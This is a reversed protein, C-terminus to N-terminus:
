KRAPRWPQQEDDGAAARERQLEGVDIRAETRRRPRIRARTGTVEGAVALADRQFRRGGVAACASDRAALRRREAIETRARRRASRPEALAARRADIEQAIRTVATRASRGASCRLLAGGPTASTGASRGRARARADVDRRIRLVASGTAIAAFPPRRQAVGSRAGRRARGPENRAPLRADLGARIVPM